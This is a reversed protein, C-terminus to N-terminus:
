VAILRVREGPALQALKWLDDSVVTAPQLYGGTVPHDPGMVVLSGDPHLQVTGCQMGSSPLDRPANIALDSLPKLRIGVRDIQPTVECEIESISPEHPGPAIAIEKTMGLTTSPGPRTPPVGVHGSSHLSMGRMVRVAEEPYKAVELGGEIAIYGRLSRLRGLDLEDVVQSEVREGDCFGIRTPRVFRLKPAVLVCEL